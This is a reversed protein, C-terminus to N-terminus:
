MRFFCYDSLWSLYTVKYLDPVPVGQEGGGPAQRCGSIVIIVWGHYTPWTIYTLSRYVKNVEEQLKDVDQFLLLDSLWSLYTVTYLDPVPVGQEGGGAAQRCGSIVIIVWGHCTPWTIYTLPWYVKNVEEQLKDVDQFLLLWEVM